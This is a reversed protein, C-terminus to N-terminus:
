SISGTSGDAISCTPRGRDDSQTRSSILCLPVLLRPQSRPYHSYSRYMVLLALGCGDWNWISYSGRENPENLSTSARLCRRPHM